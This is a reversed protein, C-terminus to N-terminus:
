KKGIFVAHRPKGSRTYGSYRYRIHDGLKFNSKRDQITFGSGIKFTQGNADKVTLSGLLGAFKGKGPNIKIVKAIGQYEPKLKLLDVGPKGPYHASEHHLMLGEAGEATIKKLRMMLHSESDLKEQQIFKIYPSKINSKLVRMKEVRASFPGKEDPMDFVMLTLQSWRSKNDSQVISLTTEFQGRGAWLEGDLAYNPFNRIFYNPPSLIRGSKSFLRQGDWYARIGDFKESVYYKNLPLGARYEGALMLEPATPASHLSLTYVSFLLIIFRYAFM